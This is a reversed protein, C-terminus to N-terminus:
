VVTIGEQINLYLREAAESDEKLIKQYQTPTCQMFRRFVKNFYSPSNFGTIFGLDAISEFSDPAKYLMKVAAYVRYEMLYEMPTKSLVRKFCRCCESNSLHIHGAIDELAILDRYNEAIYTVAAEVRKEDLSPANRGSFAAKKQSAYDMLSIWQASLLSRTMLEYGSKKILNAAVVRNLAELISEELMTEETLKIFTIGTQTMFPVAYKTYLFREPMVFRSDFGIAYFGLSESSANHVRFPVNSNILVGEGANVTVNELDNTVRLSGNNVILVVIERYRRSPSESNKFDAPLEMFKVFVHYDPSEYMIHTLSERESMSIGTKSSVSNSLTQWKCILIIM